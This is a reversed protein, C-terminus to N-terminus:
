AADHADASPDVKAEDEQEPRQEHGARKALRATEIAEREKETLPRSLGGSEDRQWVVSIV